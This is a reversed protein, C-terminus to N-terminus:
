NQLASSEARLGILHPESIPSVDLLMEADLSQLTKLELHSITVFVICM